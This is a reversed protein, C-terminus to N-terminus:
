EAGFSRDVAHFSIRVRAALLTLVSVKERASVMDSLPGNEIDIAEYCSQNGTRLIEVDALADRLWVFIPKTEAERNDEAERNAEAERNKETKHYGRM